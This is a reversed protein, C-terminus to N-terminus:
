AQVPAPAQASQTQQRLALLRRYQRLVYWRKLRQLPSRNGFRLRGAALRGRYADIQVYSPVSRGAGRGALIRCAETMAWGGGLLCAAINSPGYKKEVHIDELNLQGLHLARPAMGALFAALARMPDQGDYWDFYRDAALGRPDFVLVAGSFGLPAGFIVHLGRARSESFLLRHACVEFAEIADMVLSCGELFAAINGATLYEGWVDVRCEPNIALIRDKLAEAKNRGVTQMTAGLQRNFNAVEFEDGDALAFSGVGMRALAEAYLGGM